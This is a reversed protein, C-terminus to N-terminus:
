RLSHHTGEVRTPPAGRRLDELLKALLAEEFAVCGTATIQEALTPEWPTPPIPERIPAMPRSTTYDAATMRWPKATPVSRLVATVTRIGAPDFDARVAINWGFVALEAIASIETPSPNGMTCVLRIQKASDPNRAAMDAAAALVSPNETVFV